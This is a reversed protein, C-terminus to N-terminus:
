ATDDGLRPFWHMAGLDTFSCGYHANIAAQRIHMEDQDDECFLLLSNCQRVPLGLFKGNEIACATALQQALSTKGEGGAGYISTVRRMPVWDPVLWQRVPVPRGELTTPDIAILSGYEPAGDVAARIDAAYGIDDPPM